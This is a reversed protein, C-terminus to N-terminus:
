QPPSVRVEFDCNRERRSALWAPGPTDRSRGIIPTSLSNTM